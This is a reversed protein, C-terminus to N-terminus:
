VRGECRGVDTVLKILTITFSSINLMYICSQIWFAEQYPNTLEGTVSQSNMAVLECTLGPYQPLQYEGHLLLKLSCIENLNCLDSM